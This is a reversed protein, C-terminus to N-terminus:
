CLQALSLIFVQILCKQQTGQRRSFSNAVRYFSIFEKFFLNNLNSKIANYGQDACKDTTEREVFKFNQFVRNHACNKKGVSALAPKLLPCIAYIQIFAM